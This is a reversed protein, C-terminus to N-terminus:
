LIRGIVTFYIVKECHMVEKKHNHDNVFVFRCEKFLFTGLEEKPVITAEEVGVM